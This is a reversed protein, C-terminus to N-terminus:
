PTIVSPQGGADDILVLPGCSAALRRLIKVILNEHGKEFYLQQPLNDGSFESIILVAWEPDVGNDKQTILAQWSAHLGNDNVKVSHETLGSIVAKIETGTPFRSPTRPYPVEQEDLWSCMEDDLPWVTWLIGM